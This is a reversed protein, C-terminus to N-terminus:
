KKNLDKLKDELEKTRPNLGITPLWGLVKLLNGGFSEVDAAHEKKVFRVVITAMITLLTILQSIAEFMPQIKDIWEQM